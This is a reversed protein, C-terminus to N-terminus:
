FILAIASCSLVLFLCHLWWLSVYCDRATWEAMSKIVNHARCLKIYGVPQMVEISTLITCEHAIKQLKTFQHKNYNVTLTYSLIIQVQISAYFNRKNKKNVAHRPCM